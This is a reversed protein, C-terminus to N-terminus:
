RLVGRAAMRRAFGWLLTAIVLLVVPFALSTVGGTELMPTVLLGSVVQFALAVLAILLVPAAWRRRLLLGLAGLAGGITAIGYFVYIWAPTAEYVARQELPMAALAQEGMGVQMIFFGVGILNWILGFVGVGWLSTPVKGTQAQM